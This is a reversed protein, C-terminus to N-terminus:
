EPRSVTLEQAPLPTATFSAKKRIILPMVSTFKQIRRISLWDTFSSNTQFLHDQPFNIQMSIWKGSAKILLIFRTETGNIALRKANADSPLNLSLDISGTEPNIKQLVPIGTGNKGWGGDCMVWLHNEKDAVISGPQRGTKIEQTISDTKSDIKLIANDFSWCSVYVDDGIQVMQETSAHKTNVSGTIQNNEPNFITIKGAYLDTVYAKQSNIFHIYRPSTLGTIKGTYKGTALDIIYIKGSNNMVIYGKDGLKNMSQGVDGLPLGNFNYFIDNTIQHKVPDYFSLTSNGYMFNGENVIFVGKPLNGGAQQHEKVWQEDKMCGAILLISLIIYIVKGNM